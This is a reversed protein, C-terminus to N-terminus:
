RDDGLRPLNVKELVVPLDAEVLLSLRQLQRQLLFRPRRLDEPLGPVAAIAEKAAIMSLM